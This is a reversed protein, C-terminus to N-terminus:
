RDHRMHRIDDHATRRRNKQWVGLMWEIAMQQDESIDDECFKHIWVVPVADVAPLAEIKTEINTISCVEGNSHMWSGYGAKSRLNYFDPNTNPVISKCIEIAAARSILDAM